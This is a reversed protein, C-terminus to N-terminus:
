VELKPIAIKNIIFVCAQCLCLFLKDEMLNDGLCEAHLFRGRQKVYGTEMGPPSRWPCFTAGRASQTCGSDPPSRSWSSRQAPHAAMSRSPSGCGTKM